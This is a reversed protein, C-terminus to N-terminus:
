RADGAVHDLAEPHARLYDALAVPDHGTLERVAPSVGQVKGERIAWYSSVWGRVEWDPAGFVRRSAFAEEDTEDQFLVPKGTLRRMAEAAEGLSFDEPGTLDYTRGDHDDGTLM